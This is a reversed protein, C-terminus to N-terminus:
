AIATCVEPERQQLVTRTPRLVFGDNVAFAEPFADQQCPAPKFWFQPTVGDDRLFGAAEASFRWHLHRASRLFDRFNARRPVIRLKGDLKQVTQKLKVKIV